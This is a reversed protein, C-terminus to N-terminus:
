PTNPFPNEEIQLYHEERDKLTLALIKEEDERGFVICADQLVFLISLANVDDSTSMPINLYMISYMHFASRHRDEILICLRKGDANNECENKLNVYHPVSSNLVVKVWVLVTFPRCHFHQMFNM